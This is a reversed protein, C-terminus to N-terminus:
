MGLKMCLPAGRWLLNEGGESGWPDTHKKHDITEGELLVNQIFGHTM